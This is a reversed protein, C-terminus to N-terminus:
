LAPFLDPAQLTILARLARFEGKTTTVLLTLGALISGGIIIKAPKM